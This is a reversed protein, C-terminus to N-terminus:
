FDGSKLLQPLSTKIRVDTFRSHSTYLSHLQPSLSLVCLLLSNQSLYSPYSPTQLQLYGVKMRFQASPRTPPPPPPPSNVEDDDDDDDDDDDKNLFVTFVDPM